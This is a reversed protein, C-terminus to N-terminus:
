RGGSASLVDSAGRPMYVISAASHDEARGGSALQAVWRRVGDPLTRLDAERGLWDPDAKTEVRRRLACNSARRLKWYVQRRWKVGDSKRQM